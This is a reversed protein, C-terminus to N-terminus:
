CPLREYVGTVFSCVHRASGDEEHIHRMHRITYRQSSQTHDSEHFSQWQTCSSSTSTPIGSARHGLQRLPSPFPGAGSPHATIRIRAGREVGTNSTCGQRSRKHVARRTRNAAALAKQSACNLHDTAQRLTRAVDALTVHRAQRGGRLRRVPCVGTILLLKTKRHLTEQLPSLTDNRVMVGLAYRRAARLTRLRQQLTGQLRLSPRYM